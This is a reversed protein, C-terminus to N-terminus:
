ILMVDDESTEERPYTAIPIPPEDIADAFCINIEHGSVVFGPEQTMLLLFALTWLTSQM